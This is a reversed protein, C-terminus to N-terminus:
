QERADFRALTQLVEAAAGCPPTIPFRCVEKGLVREIGNRDLVRDAVVRSVVLVGQERSGGVIPDDALQKVGSVGGFVTVLDEPEGVRNGRRAQSFDDTDQARVYVGKVLSDPRGHSISCCTIELVVFVETQAGHM